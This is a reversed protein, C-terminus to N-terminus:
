GGHRGLTQGRKSVEKAAVSKIKALRAEEKAERELHLVHQRADRVRARAEAMARDADREAAEAHMVRERASAISPDVDRNRLTGHGRSRSLLGGSGTSSTSARGVSASHRHGRRSREGDSSSLSSVSGSRHFLGRKREVPAPAPAPAPQSRHFMGRRQPEPEIVPEPERRSGFFPM